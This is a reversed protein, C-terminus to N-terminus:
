EVNIQLLGLVYVLPSDWKLLSYPINMQKITLVEVKVWAKFIHQSLQIIEGLHQASSIQVDMLGQLDACIYSISEESPRGKNPHVLFKKLEL